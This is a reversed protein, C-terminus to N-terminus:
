KVGHPGVIVRALAFQQKIFEPDAKHQIKIYSLGFEVAFLQLVRELEM